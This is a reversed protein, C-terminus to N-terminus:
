GEDAGADPQIAELAVLQEDTLKTLDLRARHEIPGGGVGTHEVRERYTDPKRAKLMFMLLTDSYKRVIVSPHRELEGTEENYVSEFEEREVWGEVARRRAEAEMRETTATEVGTWALAFAEDDDRRKYATSRSVGAAGCAATVIGFEAFAELFEPVWDPEHKQGQRGRARGRSADSTDASKGRKAM